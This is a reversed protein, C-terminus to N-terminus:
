PTWKFSLSTLYNNQDRGGTFGFNRVQEFGLQLLTAFHPTTQWGLESQFRARTESQGDTAKTVTNNSISFIDSDREEWTLKMNHHWNFNLQYHWLASVAQADSGLEDGLIQRHLTWGSTYQQHRYPLFGALKYEFRLSHRGDDTVRPFYLGVRNFAEHFFKYATNLDELTVEYYIQTGRWRPIKFKFSFAGIRNSSFGDVPSEGGYLNPIYGVFIDAIRSGIGANPSGKGGSMLAATVGWEFNRQPLFSFKYASIYPSPFERDSGLVGFMFSTQLKGLHGFFWPLQFPHISAAKFMDLGRANNTFLNGGEPSDGWNLFDRGFQLGINKWEARGYFHDANVDFKGDGAADRFGMIQPQGSISGWSGFHIEHRNELYFNQGDQTPRGGRYAALPNVLTEIEHNAGADRLATRFESELFLHEATAWRFPRIAFVTEKQPLQKELQGVLIHARPEFNRGQIRGLNGKAEETLRRIESWPLPRQNLIASDILGFATLQDIAHYIRPHESVSANLAAFASSHSFFILLIFTKKWM